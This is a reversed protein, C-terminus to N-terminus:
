HLCCWALRTSRTTSSALEAYDAHELIKRTAQQQAM